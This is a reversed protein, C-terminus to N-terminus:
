KLYSCHWEGSKLAYKNKKILNEHMGYYFSL